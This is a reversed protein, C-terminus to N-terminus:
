FELVIESNIGFYWREIFKALDAILFVMVIKMELSRTFIPPTQPPFNKGALRLRLEAARADARLWASFQRLMKQNQARRNERRFSFAIKRRPLAANRCQPPASRNSKKLSKQYLSNSRLQIVV